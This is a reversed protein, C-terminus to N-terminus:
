EDQIRRALALNHRTSFKTDVATAMKLEEGKEGWRVASEFQGRYWDFYCRLDCLLIFQSSKGAISTEYRKLLQDTAEHGLQIMATLCKEFVDDFDKYSSCAEAWDVQGFLRRTHRIMAESYGRNILPDAVELITSTAEEFRGFTTYIDAKRMWHEMIDYSPDQALLGKYRGIMQDLFNLITGVYKERDKKLFKTRVFEKIIPHLGLLPEGEMQTRVEILHFSRLTKLARNVRNINIGPLLAMLRREPEPRELEAMTRLVNRQQENLMGWITKTTDPLTAGGRKVLDLIGRLGSPHRVAQMAILNVWLPHGGTTNYVEIALHVEKSLVGRERILEKVENERFGDLPLRMARSEDIRVDPRCTFLFLSQHSRAQANSILADLVKVPRLTELDVYQDVNDFVLLARRTQLVHFLM